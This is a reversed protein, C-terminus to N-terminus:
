FKTRALWENYTESLGCHQELLLESHRTRVDYNYLIYTVSRKFPMHGLILSGDSKLQLAKFEARNNKSIPFYWECGGYTILYLHMGKYKFRYPPSILGHLIAGEHILFQGIIPYEDEKGANSNLLLHGIKGAHDCLRVKDYGENKAMACRWLISLHFLRFSTYNLNKLQWYRENFRTPLRDSGYWVNNFHRENEGLLGECKECLLYERFSDQRIRRQFKTNKQFPHPPEYRTFNGKENRLYKSLLQPFIHSNQLQGENKCLRCIQVSM